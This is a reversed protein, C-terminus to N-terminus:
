ICSGVTVNKWVQRNKATKLSSVPTLGELRQKTQRLLLFKCGQDHPLSWIIFIKLTQGFVYSRKSSSVFYIGQLAGNKKAGVLSSIAIHICMYIAINVHVDHTIIFKKWRTWFLVILHNLCFSFLKQRMVFDCISLKLTRRIYIIICTTYSSCWTNFSTAKGCPHSRCSRSHRCTLWCTGYDRMSWCHFPQRFSRGAFLFSFYCSHLVSCCLVRLSIFHVNENEVNISPITVVHM